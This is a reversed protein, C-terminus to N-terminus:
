EGIRYDVTMHVTLNRSSTFDVGIDAPKAARLRLLGGADGFSQGSEEWSLSVSDSIEKVGIIRVGATAAMADAKRRAKELAAQSAAIGAEFTEFVWNLSRLSVNPQDALIGVVASLQAATAAVCLQFEVRQNKSLKGSESLLRIGMVEIDEDGIGAALLETTLARVEAAKKVAANGFVGSAGPVLLHLRAKTATVPVDHQVSVRLTGM